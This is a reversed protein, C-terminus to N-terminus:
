SPCPQPTASGGAHSAFKGLVESRDTGKCAESSWSLAPLPIAHITRTIPWSSSVVEADLM